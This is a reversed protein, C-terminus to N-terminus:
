PAPPRPEPDAAPGAVVGRRDLPQELQLDINEGGVPGVEASAARARMLDAAHVRDDAARRSPPCSCADGETRAFPVNNARLLAQLPRAREIAVAIGVIAPKQEPAIAEIDKYEAQFASPAWIMLSSQAPRSWVCGEFLDETIAGWPRALAKATAQPDDSV